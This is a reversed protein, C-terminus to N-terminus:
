HSQMQDLRDTKELLLEKLKASETEELSFGSRATRNTSTKAPAKKVPGIFQTLINLSSFKDKLQGVSKAADPPPNNHRSDNNNGEVTTAFLRHDDTQLTFLDRSSGPGRKEPWQSNQQHCGPNGGTLKIEKVAMENTRQSHEMKSRSSAVRPNYIHCHEDIIPNPERSM